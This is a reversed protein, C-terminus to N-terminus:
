EEDVVLVNDQNSPDPELLIIKASGSDFIESTMLNDPDEDNMRLRIVASKMTSQMTVYLQNHDGPRRVAHMPVSKRSDDFVSEMKGDNEM